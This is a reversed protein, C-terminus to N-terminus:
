AKQDLVNCMKILKYSLVFNLIDNNSYIIYEAFKKHEVLLCATWM